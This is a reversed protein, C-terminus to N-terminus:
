ACESTGDTNGRDLHEYLQRKAEEISSVVEAFKGSLQPLSPLEVVAYRRGTLKPLFDHVWDDSPIRGPHEFSQTAIEFAPLGGKETELSNM